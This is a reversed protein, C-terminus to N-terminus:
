VAGTLAAKAARRRRLANRRLTLCAECSKRGDARFRGCSCFGDRANQQKYRVSQARCHACHLRSTDRAKGCKLCRGRARWAAIRERRAVQRDSLCDACSLRGVTLPGTCRPCCGAALRAQKRRRASTLKRRALGCARCHVRGQAALKVCSACVGAARRKQYAAQAETIKLVTVREAGAEAIASKSNKRATAPPRTM